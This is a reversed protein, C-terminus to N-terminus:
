VHARGIKDLDNKMEDFDKEIYDRTSYESLAEEATSITKDNTIFCVHGAYKDKHQEIKEMNFDVIRQRAWKKKEIIFYRRLESIPEATEDATIRAYETNLKNMFSDWQSGVLDQCFLVHVQCPYQSIIQEGDKATYKEGKAEKCIYVITEEVPIGKKNTKQITVWQCRSTSVYYTRDDAKRMADPRLRTRRGDDIIERIWNANVRIAQLFLYSKKLMYTINEM